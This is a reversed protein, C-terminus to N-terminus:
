TNWIRPVCPTRNLIAPRLTKWLNRFILRATETSNGLYRAILLGDVITIGLENNQVRSIIGTSLEPLVSDAITAYFSGFVPQNRLGAPGSLGHEGNVVLREQLVPIGERVIRCNFVAKGPNFREAVVPRGLCNIEWGIFKAERSLEVQTTLEVDAGPFFINEQPLWELDGEVLSLNQQLYARPGATRYFKTAGPTTILASAGEKVQASITLLDGGAVGGPPHLLYVHCVDPEPYLARQVTLPGKRTRKALISKGSIRRFGLHLDARWGTNHKAAAAPM